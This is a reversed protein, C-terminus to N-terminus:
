GHGQRSSAGARDTRTCHRGPGADCGFLFRLESVGRSHDGGNVTGHEGHDRHEGREGVTVWENAARRDDVNDIFRLGCDLARGRCPSGWNTAGYHRRRVQRTGKWALLPM